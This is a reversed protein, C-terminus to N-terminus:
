TACAEAGGGDNNAASVVAAGSGLSTAGTTGKGSTVEIGTAEVGVSNFTSSLNMINVSTISDSYVDFDGFVRNGTVQLKGGADTATLM